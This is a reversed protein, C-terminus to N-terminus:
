FTFVLKWLSICSISLSYATRYEIKETIKVINDSELKYLEVTTVQWNCLGLGFLGKSKKFNELEDKQILYEVETDDTYFEKVRVMRNNLATVKM